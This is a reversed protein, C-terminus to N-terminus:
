QEKLEKVTEKRAFNIKDHTTKHLFEDQLKRLRSTTDHLKQSEIALSGRM